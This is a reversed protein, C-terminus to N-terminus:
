LKKLFFRDRINIGVILLKAFVGFIPIDKILGDDLIQDIPAEILDTTIGSLNGKISDDFPKQIKIESM